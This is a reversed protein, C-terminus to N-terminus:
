ICLIKMQKLLSRVTNRFQISAVEDIYNQIEPQTLQHSNLLKVLNVHSTTGNLWKNNKDVAAVKNLQFDLNIWKYQDGQEIDKVYDSNEIFQIILSDMQQKNDNSMRFSLARITQMINLLVQNELENLKFKQNLCVADEEQAMLNIGKQQLEYLIVESTKNKIVFPKLLSVSDENIEFLINIGRQTTLKLHAQTISTSYLKWDKHPFDIFRNQAIMFPLVNKLSFSVQKTELNIKLNETNEQTWRGNQQTVVMIQDAKHFYYKESQLKLSCTFSSQQYIRIPKIYRNPDDFSPALQWKSAKKTLPPLEYMNIDYVGSLSLFQDYNKTQFPDFQTWVVKFIMAQAVVQRTLEIQLENIREFDLPRVRYGVKSLPNYWFSQIMADSEITRTFEYKYRDDQKQALRQLIRQYNDPIFELMLHQQSLIKNNENLFQEYSKIQEHTIGQIKGNVLSLIKSQYRNYQEIKQYNNFSLDNIKSLEINKIVEISQQIQRIVNNKNEILQYLFQNLEIEKQPDPLILCAVYDEWEKQSKIKKQLENVEKDWLTEFEIRDQEELKLRQKEEASMKAQQQKLFQELDQRRQNEEQVRVQEEENLLEKQINNKKKKQIKKPQKKKQDVSHKKHKDGSINRYISQTQIAVRPQALQVPIEKSASRLRLKM